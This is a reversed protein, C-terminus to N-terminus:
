GFNKARVSAQFILQRDKVKKEKETIYGLIIWKEGSIKNQLAKIMTMNEYSMDKLIHLTFNFTFRSYDSTM